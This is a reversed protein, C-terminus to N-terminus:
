IGMSGTGTLDEGVARGEGGGFLRGQRQTPKCQQELDGHMLQPYNGYQPYVRRLAGWADGGPGSVDTLPVWARQSPAQAPTGVLLYGGCSGDTFAAWEIRRPHCDLLVALGDNWGQIAGNALMLLGTDTGDTTDQGRSRVLVALAADHRHTIALLVFESPKSDPVSILPSGAPGDRLRLHFRVMQKPDGFKRTPPPASSQTALTDM